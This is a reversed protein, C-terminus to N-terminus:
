SGDASVRLEKFGLYSYWAGLGLLGLAAELTKLHRDELVTLSIAGVIFAAGQILFGWSPRRILLLAGLVMLAAMFVFTGYREATPAPDHTVWGVNRLSTPVRLYHLTAGYIMTGYLAGFVFGFLRWGPYRTPTM